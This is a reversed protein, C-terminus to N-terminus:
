FSAKCAFCRSTSRFDIFSLIGYLLMFSYFRRRSNAAAMLRLLDVVDNINMLMKTRFLENQPQEGCDIMEAHHFRQWKLPMKIIKKHWLLMQSARLIRNRYGWVCKGARIWLDRTAVFYIKSRLAARPGAHTSHFGFSNLSAERHFRLRLAKTKHDRASKKGTAKKGQVFLFCFRVRRGDRSM